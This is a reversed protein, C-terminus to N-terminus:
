TRRVRVVFERFVSVGPPIKGKNTEMYTKVATKTIRKELFEFADNKAVWKYFADWDDARPTIEEQKYFTGSPTKVSDTGTDNLHKLMQGELLELKAKLVNDEEEFKKKLTSRAERLAVYAKTIKNNDM